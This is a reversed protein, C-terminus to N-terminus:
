IFERADAMNAFRRTGVITEVEVSGDPFTRFPRRADHPAAFPPPPPEAAQRNTSRSLVAAFFRNLTGFGTHLGGIIALAFGSGILCKGIDLLDAHFTPTLPRAWRATVIDSLATAGLLFIWGIAALILGIWTLRGIELTEFDNTMLQGGAPALEDNM